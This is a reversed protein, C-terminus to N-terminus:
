LLPFSDVAEYTRKGDITLSEYLVVEDVPEVFNVVKHIQPVPSLKLWRNKKLKALIIHPRFSQLEHTKNTFLTEIIKKLELLETSEPGTLWIEKPNEENEHLAIQDLHIDFAEVDQLVERLKESM